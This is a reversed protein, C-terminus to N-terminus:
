LWTIGGCCRCDALMTTMGPFLAPYTRAKLTGAELSADISRRPQLPTHVQLQHWRKTSFINGRDDPCKRPFTTTWVANCGLRGVDVNEVGYGGYRMCAFVSCFM